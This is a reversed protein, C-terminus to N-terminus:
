FILLFFVLDFFHNLILILIQKLIVFCKLFYEFYLLMSIGIQSIFTYKSLWKKTPNIPYEEGEVKFETFNGM